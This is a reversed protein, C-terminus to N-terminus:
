DSAKKTGIQREMEASQQQFRRWKAHMKIDRAMLAHLDDQPAVAYRAEQILHPILAEVEPGSEKIIRCLTEKLTENRVEIALLRRNLKLIDSKLSEISDM